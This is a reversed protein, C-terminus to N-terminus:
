MSPPHFIAAQFSTTELQNYLPHKEFEITRQAIVPGTLEQQFCLQLEPIYKRNGPEQEHQQRQESELKKKLYCKGNCHLEPKSKNICLQLTIKEINIYFDAMVLVAGM